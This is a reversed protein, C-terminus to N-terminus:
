PQAEHGRRCSNEGRGHSLFPQLGLPHHRAHGITMRVKLSRPSVRRHCRELPCPVLTGDVRGLLDGLALLSEHVTDLATGARTVRVTLCWRRTAPDTGVVLDPEFLARPHGDDVAFGPSREDGVRMPRSLRRWRSCCMARIPLSSPTAQVILEMEKGEVKPALLDAVEYMAVQLDFPIPELELRGAEVKSFDLIDNIITLLSEGSSRIAEVYERQDAGMETGLLLQSMGLVGNMPTRIEHSMCALFDSKARSAEAANDRAAALEEAQKVLEAAQTEIQANASEVNRVHFYLQQEHAKREFGGAVMGALTGFARVEGGRWNKPKQGRTLVIFGFLAGLCHVPSLLVSKLGLGQLVAQDEAAEPPMKAVDAVAVTQGGSLRSAIWPMSDYPLRQRHAIESGLGPARWENTEPEADDVRYLYAREAGLHAGIMKLSDSIVPDVDDAASNLFLTSVESLLGDLEARRERDAIEQEVQKFGAYMSTFLGVLVLVYSVTKLAHAADFELDFLVGSFSM